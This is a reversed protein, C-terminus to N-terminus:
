RVSVWNGSADKCARGTVQQMRGDIFADMKYDRCVSNQGNVVGGYTATPTVTYRSNTSPDTWTNSRYDPTTDLAYNTRNRNQPSMAAGIYGGIIAGIVTMATRGRGKGLQHGAAAGVISGILVRTQDNTMTPIGGGGNTATCGGLLLASSVTVAVLGKSILTKM